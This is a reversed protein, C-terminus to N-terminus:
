ITIMSLMSVSKPLKKCPLTPLYAPFILPVSFHLRLLFNFIESLKLLPSLTLYVTQLFVNCHLTVSLLPSNRLNINLQALWTYSPAYLCMRRTPKPFVMCVHANLAQLDSPKTSELPSSIRKRWNWFDVNYKCSLRPQTTRKVLRVLINLNPLM